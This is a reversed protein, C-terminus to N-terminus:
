QGAERAMWRGHGYVMCGSVEAIGSKVSCRSYAGGGLCMVSCRSHALDLDLCMLSPLVSQVNGELAIFKYSDSLEM